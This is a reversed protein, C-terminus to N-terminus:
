SFFKLVRKIPEAKLFSYDFDDGDPSSKALSVYGGEFKFPQNEAKFIHNCEEQFLDRRFPDIMRSYIEMADFVLEAKVDLIFQDMEGSKRMTDQVYLKKPYDEQNSLVIEKLKGFFLSDEMAVGDWINYRKMCDIIKLRVPMPVTIVIEGKEMEEKHRQSFLHM